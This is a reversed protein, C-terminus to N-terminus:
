RDRLFGSVNGRIETEAEIIVHGQSGISPADVKEPSRKDYLRIDKVKGFSNQPVFINM